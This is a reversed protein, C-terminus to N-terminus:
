ESVDEDNEPVENTPHLNTFVSADIQVPEEDGESAEGNESDESIIYRDFIKVFFISHLYSIVAFGMLFYFLMVMPFAKAVLFALVVPAATILLMLITYPLHRISMLLSNKFTNKISNYFKSLVPYVYLLVMLYIAIGMMFIYTLVMYFTGKDQFTRTTYFDFALLLGVVVMILHIITAQRFNQRFSHFFGKVIYSEENKAMKLTMYYMATISAGATVIPLCCLICLMNLIMFDAVRSMFTFFKNDPNFLNNM